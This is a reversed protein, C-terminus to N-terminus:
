KKVEAYSRLMLGTGAVTTVVTIPLHATKIQMLFRFRSTIEIVIIALGIWTM